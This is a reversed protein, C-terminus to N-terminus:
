YNQMGDHYLGVFPVLNNGTRGFYGAICHDLRSAKDVAKRNKMDLFWRNLNPYDRVMALNLKMRSFYVPDHRFITPFLRIDAETPIEDSALYKSKSLIGDLWSLARFYKATADEYSAQDSSFGARYAGNNVDQYVRANIRDIIELSADDKSSGKSVSGFMRVIDASENSVVRKTKTDFLIPVSKQTSTPESLRYIDRACKFGNKTPDSKDIGTLLDPQDTEFSKFESEETPLFRWGEEGRRYFMTSVQVMKEVEPYLARAVLTRHCWPCNNAVFLVYRDPEMPFDEGGLWHRFTSVSRVFEGKAKREEANTQNQDVGGVASVEKSVVGDSQDVYNDKGGDLFDKRYGIPVVGNPNASTFNSYYHYVIQDLDLAMAESGIEQTSRRLYSSLFPYSSIRRTYCKFLSFYVPDFRVLCSTLQLDALSLNDGLLYLRNDSLLTELRDLESFIRGLGEEYAVQTKALGCMYVRNGLETDIKRGEKDIAEPDTYLHGLEDPVTEVFHRMIGFSDNSLIKNSKSDYLTPTTINGTYKPEAALYIELLTKAQIPSKDLTVPLKTFQKLSEENDKSLFEWGIADDRFPSVISVSIKKQLTQSLNRTLLARHAWPCAACVYLHLDTNELDLPGSHSFKTPERKYEPGQPKHGGFAVGDIVYVM